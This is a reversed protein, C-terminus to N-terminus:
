RRLKRRAVGPLGALLLLMSMPEPSSTITAQFTSSDYSRLTMLGMSTPIDFWDGVSLDTSNTIPGFATSLDYSGFSPDVVQILDCCNPIGMVGYGVKNCSQCDFVYDTGTVNMSGVGSLSITANAPSINFTGLPNQLIASTDAVATITLDASAFSTSGLVGSVVGTFTYTITTARASPAVFTAVPLVLFCLVRLLRM